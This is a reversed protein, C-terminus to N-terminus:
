CKRGEGMVWVGVAGGQVTVDRGGVLACVEGRPEGWMAWQAGPKQQSSRRAKFRQLQGATQPPLIPNGFVGEWLSDRAM